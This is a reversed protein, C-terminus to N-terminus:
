KSMRNDHKKDYERFRQKGAVCCIPMELHPLESLSYLPCQRLDGSQYDFVVATEYAYIAAFRSGEPSVIIGFPASSPLTVTDMARFGDSLEYVGM